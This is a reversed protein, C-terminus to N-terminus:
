NQRRILPVTVIVLPVYLLSSNHLMSVIRSIRQVDASPVDLWENLALILQSRVEKGPKSALYEYPALLIDEKQQSWSPKECLAPLIDNYRAADGGPKAIGNKMKQQPPDPHCEEQLAPQM